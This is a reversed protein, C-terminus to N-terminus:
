SASKLSEMKERVFKINKNYVQAGKERAAKFAEHMAQMDIPEHNALKAFYQNVTVTLAWTNAFTTSVGTLSAGIPPMKTLNSIADRVGTPQIGQTIGRWIQYANIDATNIDWCIAVERIMQCQYTIVLIDPGIAVNLSPFVWFMACLTAYHLALQELSKERRSLDFEPMVPTERHFSQRMNRLISLLKEIKRPKVGFASQLQDLVAKETQDCDGDVNAMAFATNYTLERADPSIINNIYDLLHDASSTALLDDVSLIPQTMEDQIDALSDLAVTLATRENDHIKGDAMAVCALVRLSGEAERTNVSM